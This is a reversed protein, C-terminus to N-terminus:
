GTPASSHQKDGAAVAGDDLLALLRACEAITGEVDARVKEWESADTSAAAALLSTMAGKLSAKIQEDRTM